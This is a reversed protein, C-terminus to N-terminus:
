DSLLGGESEGVATAAVGRSRATQGGAQAGQVGDGGDVCQGRPPDSRQIQGQNRPSSGDPLCRAVTYPRLRPRSSRRSHRTGVVCRYTTPVRAIPYYAVRTCRRRVQCATATWYEASFPRGHFDRDFSAASQHTSRLPEPGDVGRSQRLVDGASRRWRRWSSTRQSAPWWLWARHRRGRRTCFSRQRRRDYGYRKSSHSTLRRVDFLAQHDSRAVM